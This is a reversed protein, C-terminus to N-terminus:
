GARARQCEHPHDRKQRRCPVPCKDEERLLEREDAVYSWQQWIESTQEVSRRLADLEGGVRARAAKKSSKKSIKPATEHNKPPTPTQQPSIRSRLYCTALPICCYRDRPPQIRLNNSAPWLPLIHRRQKTFQEHQKIQDSSPKLRTHNEARSKSSHSSTTHKSCTTSAAEIM